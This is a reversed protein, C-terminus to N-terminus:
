CGWGLVGNEQLADDGASRLRCHHHPFLDESSGQGESVQRWQRMKRGARGAFEKFAKEM